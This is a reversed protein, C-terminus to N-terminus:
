LSGVCVWSHSGGWFPVGFFSGVLVQFHGWIPDVVLFCGGFIPDVGFHVGVHFGGWLGWIPDRVGFPLWCHPDGWFHSGLFPFCFFLGLWSMSIVGFPIWGWFRGGFIPDVGFSGLISDGRCYVGCLGLQPVGGWFPVGFFSGILLQFHGWIPDLGLFLGWFPISGLPAWFPIWGVIFGVCVRCHSGGGWCSGM